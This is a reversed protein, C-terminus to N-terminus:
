EKKLREAEKEEEKKKREEERKVREAEKQEDKKKKEEERVKKEEERLKEKEKKELERKEKEAQKNIKDEERKRKKEEAERLRQVKQQEKEEKLRQREEKTLPSAHKDVSGQLEKETEKLADEKSVKPFPLPSSDAPKSGSKPSKREGSGPSKRNKSPAHNNNMPTKPSTKKISHNKTQKNVPSKRKEIPSEPLGRDDNLVAVVNDHDKKCHNEEDNKDGNPTTLPAPDQKTKKRPPSFFSHIDQKRTNVPTDEIIIVTKNESANEKDELSTMIFNNSQKHSYSGM